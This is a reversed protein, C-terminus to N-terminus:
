NFVKCFTSFKLLFGSFSFLSLQWFSNATGVANGSALLMVANKKREDLQPLFNNQRQGCCGFSM